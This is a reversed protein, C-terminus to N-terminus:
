AGMAPSRNCFATFPTFCRHRAIPAKQAPTHPAERRTTTSCRADPKECCESHDKLLTEEKKKYALVAYHNYLLLFFAALLFFFLFPLCSFVLRDLCFTKAGM